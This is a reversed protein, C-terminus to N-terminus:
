GVTEQVGVVGFPMRDTGADQVVRHSLNRQAGGIVAVLGEAVGHGLQQAHVLRALPEGPHDGTEIDVVVQSVSVWQETAAHGVQVQAGGLTGRAHERQEVVSPRHEEVEPAGPPDSRAEQASLTRNTSAVYSPSHSSGTRP